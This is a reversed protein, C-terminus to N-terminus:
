ARVWDASACRVVFMAASLVARGITVAAGIAALLVCGVCAGAILNGNGTGDPVVAGATVTLLPPCLIGIGVCATGVTVAVTGACIVLAGVPIPVALM